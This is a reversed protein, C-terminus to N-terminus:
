NGVALYARARSDEIIFQLKNTLLNNISILDQKAIMNLYNLQQQSIYVKLNTEGMAIHNNIQWLLIFLQYNLDYKNTIKFSNGKKQRSIELVGMNSFGLVSTKNHDSEFSKKLFSLINNRYQKNTLKLLDVFIQGSLNRLIIQRLIFPIIAMNAKYIAEDKLLTFSSEQFFNVDIYNFAEEEYFVLNLNNNLKIKSDHMMSFDEKIDYYDLINEGATPIYGTTKINLFRYKSSLEKAIRICSIDQTIIEQPLEKSNLLLINELFSRRHLLGIKNDLALSHWTDKLLKLELILAELFDHKYANRIIIGFKTFDEKISQLVNDRDNQTLKKPFIIKQEEASSDMPKLVSLVGSLGVDKSVVALKDPYTGVKIVQVVVKDGIKLSTNSKHFQMFCNNKGGLHLFYGGINSAISDVQGLYIDGICPTDEGKPQYFFSHLKGDVIKFISEFFSTSHYIFKINFMQYIGMILCM